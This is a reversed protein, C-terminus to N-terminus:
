KPTESNKFVRVCSVHRVQSIHLPIPKYLLKGGEGLLFVRQKISLQTHKKKKKKWFLFRWFWLPLFSPCIGARHGFGCVFVFARKTHPPPFWPLSPNCVFDKLDESASPGTMHRATFQDHCLAASFFLSPFFFTPVYSRTLPVFSSTTSAPGSLFPVCVSLLTKVDASSFTDPSSIHRHRWVSLCTCMPTQQFEAWCWMCFIFDIDFYM